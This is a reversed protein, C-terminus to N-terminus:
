SARTCREAIDQCEGPDIEASKDGRMGLWTGKINPSWGTLCADFPAGLPVGRVRAGRDCSQEGNAMSLAREVAESSGEGFDVAVLINKFPTM